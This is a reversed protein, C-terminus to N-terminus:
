IGGMKKALKRVKDKKESYMYAMNENNIQEDSSLNWKRVGTFFFFHVPHIFVKTTSHLSRQTFVPEYSLVNKSAEM